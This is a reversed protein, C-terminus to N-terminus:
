KFVGNAVCLESRENGLKERTANNGSQLDFESEMHCCLIGTDRSRHHDSDVITSCWEGMGCASTRREIEERRKEQRGKEPNLLRDDFYINTLFCIFSQSHNM